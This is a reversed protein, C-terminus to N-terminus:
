YGDGLFFKTALTRFPFSVIDQNPPILLEEIMKPLTLGKSLPFNRLSTLADLKGTDGFLHFCVAPGLHLKWDKVKVWYVGPFNLFRWNWCCSYGCGGYGMVFCWWWVVTRAIDTGRTTRSM